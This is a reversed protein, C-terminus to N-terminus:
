QKVSHPFNLAPLGVAETVLPAVTDGVIVDVENTGLLKALEAPPFGTLDKRLTQPVHPFNKKFVAIAEPNFDVAALCNFGAREM